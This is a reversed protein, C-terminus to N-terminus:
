VKVWLPSASNWGPTSNWSSKRPKQAKPRTKLCMFCTVWRNSSVLTRDREQLRPDVPVPQSLTASSGAATVSVPTTASSREQQPTTGGRMLGAATASGQESEPCVKLQLTPSHAQLVAADIFHSIKDSVDGILQSSSSACTFVFAARLWLQLNLQMPQLWILTSPTNTNTNMIVQGKLFTINIQTVNFIHSFDDWSVSCIQTTYHDMKLEVTDIMM